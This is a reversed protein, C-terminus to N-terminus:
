NLRNRSRPNYSKTTTTSNEVVEEPIIFDPDDLCDLDDPLDIDIWRSWDVEEDDSADIAWSSSEEVKQKNYYNVLTLLM